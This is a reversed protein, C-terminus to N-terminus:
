KQSRFYHAIGYFFVKAHFSVLGLYYRHRPMTIIEVHPAEAGPAYSQMEIKVYFIKNVITM